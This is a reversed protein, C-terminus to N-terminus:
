DRRPFFLATNVHLVTLYKCLKSIFWNLFIEIEEDWQYGLKWLQEQLLSAETYVITLAPLLSGPLCRAREPHQVCNLNEMEESSGQGGMKVLHSQRVCGSDGRCGRRPGMSPPRPCGSCPPSRPPSGTGRGTSDRDGCPGPDARDWTAPAPSNEGGVGPPERGGQWTRPRVAATM